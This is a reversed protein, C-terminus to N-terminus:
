SAQWAQSAQWDTVVQLDLTDSLSLERVQYGLEFDLESAPMDLVLKGSPLAKNFKIEHFM